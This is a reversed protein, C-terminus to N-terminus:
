LVREVGLKCVASGGREYYEVRVERRAGAVDVVAEHATLSQDIWRDILLREDLFLRVGDDSTLTLKWRGVPLEISGWWRASFHESGVRALRGTGGWDLRRTAATPSPPGSRNRLRVEHVIRTSV